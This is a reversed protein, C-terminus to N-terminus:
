ARGTNARMRALVDRTTGGQAEDYEQAFDAYYDPVIPAEGEYIVEVTCHCNSHFNPDYSYTRTGIPNGEASSTTSFALLACFACAGPEAVRQVTQTVTDRNANYDITERNYQSVQLTMANSVLGPLVDFGQAMFTAMGYNIITESELVSDFIPLAATYPKKTPAFLARTKDYYDAATVANVNGYRGIIGPVVSRLFGGMEQQGLGAAQSIVKTAERTMLTSVHLMTNRNKLALAKRTPM